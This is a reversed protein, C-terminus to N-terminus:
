FSFGASGRNIMDYLDHKSYSYDLRVGGLNLGIGANLGEKYYNIKYGVRLFLMDKYAFEGGIRYQEEWDRPHLM